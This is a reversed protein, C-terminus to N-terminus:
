STPGATPAARLTTMASAASQRIVPKTARSSTAAAWPHTSRARAFFLGPPTGTSSRTTALSSIRMPGASSSTAWRVVSWYTMAPVARLTTWVATPRIRPLFRISITPIRSTRTMLIVKGNDGLLIDAGSDDGGKITDAGTGGLAVDADNGGSIQDDDGSQPDATEIRVVVKNSDRTVKGNDGLIVDLGSDGTINDKRDGGLLIDNGGSGFLNDAGSAASTQAVILTMTASGDDGVIIDNGLDSLADGILEDGATGGFIVDDGAGGFITDKAGKGDDLTQVKGAAVDFSGNDGIIWDAGEDGIINDGSDDADRTTSGGVLRDADPGGQISDSNANGEAYDNDRQGLLTDNGDAGFMTDNGLGGEMFDNGGQGYMRDGGGGGRMIDNAGSSNVVVTGQADITGNDGVLIDDGDGGDLFDAGSETTTTSAQDGILRDSGFSGYM